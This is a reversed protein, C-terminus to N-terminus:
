LAIKIKKFEKKQEARSYTDRAQGDGGKERFWMYGSKYSMRLRTLMVVSQKRLIGM